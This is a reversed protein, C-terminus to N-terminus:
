RLDSRDCDAPHMSPFPLYSDRDRLNDRLQQSDSLYKSHGPPAIDSEDDSLKHDECFAAQVRDYTPLQPMQRFNLQFLSLSFVVEQSKVM